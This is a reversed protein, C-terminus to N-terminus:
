IDPREEAFGARQAASGLPETTAPVRLSEPRSSTSPEYAARIMTLDKLNVIFGAAVIGYSCVMVLKRCGWIAIVRVAILLTAAAIACYACVRIGIFLARCNHSKICGFQTMVMVTAWTMYFLRCTLYVWITWLYKRKGKWVSWEYDVTLVYEWCLIGFVM